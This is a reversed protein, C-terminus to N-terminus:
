FFTKDFVNLFFHTKALVKETLLARHAKLPLFHIKALVKETLLAM